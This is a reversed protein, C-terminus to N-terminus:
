LFIFLCAVCIMTEHGLRLSHCIPWVESKIIIILCFVYIIVITTLSTSLSFVCLGHMFSIQSFQSLRLRESLIYIVLMKSTWYMWICRCLTSLSTTYHAFLRIYGYHWLTISYKRVDYSQLTIFSVFGLKGPIYISGVAHSPVVVEPVCGRFFIVIIPYTSM